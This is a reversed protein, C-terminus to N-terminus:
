SIDNVDVRLPSFSMQIMGTGYSSLDQCGSEGAFALSITSPHGYTGKEIVGRFGQRHQPEATPIRQGCSQHGVSV